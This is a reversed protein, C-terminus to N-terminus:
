ESLPDRESGRGEPPTVARVSKGAGRSEAESRRGMGQGGDKSEANVDPGGVGLGWCGIGTNLSGAGTM